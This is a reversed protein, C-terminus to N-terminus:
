VPINKVHLCIIVRCGLKVEFGTCLYSSLVDLLLLSANQASGSILSKESSNLPRERGQTM